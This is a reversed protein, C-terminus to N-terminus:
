RLPFETRLNSVGTIYDMSVDYHRALTILHDVPIRLIGRESDSYTRRSIGLIEAIERQSYNRDERIRKIRSQYSVSM